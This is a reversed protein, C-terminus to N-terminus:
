QDAGGGEKKYPLKPESPAEVQVQKVSVNDFYVDGAPHYAYLMVRLSKVKLWPHRPRFAETLRREWEGKKEPYYRAQHNYIERMQGDFDAYGKVFIIVSPGKSLIDAGVRYYAGEEVAVEASLVAIGSSDAAAPKMRYALCQDAEAGGPRRTWEVQAKVDERVVTWSEPLDKGKSFDGNPCLEDLERLVKPWKRELERRETGLLKALFTEAHQPIFHVNPCDYTEDAALEADKEGIRAGLVRLTYGEGRDKRRIEGWAAYGASFNERAHRVVDGLPTKADPRLPDKAFQEGETVLDFCGVKKGRLAHGRICTKVSSGLENKDFESVFPYVVLVPKEEKPAETPAEASPKKPPDFPLTRDEGALGAASWLVLPFAWKLDREM